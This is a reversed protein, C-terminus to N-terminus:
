HMPICRFPVTFAKSRMSLVNPHLQLKRWPVEWADEHCGLMGICQHWHMGLHRWRMGICQFWHMLICHFWHMGLCKSHMGLRRWQMDICQSGASQTRLNSGQRSHEAHAPEFGASQARCACTRVRGVPSQMRLNSDQRSPEAHATEFGASQARRACTGRVMGAGDKGWVRGM